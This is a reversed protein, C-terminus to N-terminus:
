RAILISLHRSIYGGVEKLNGVYFTDQAGLYGPHETEIEDDAEKGQKAKEMARIQEETLILNEQAM